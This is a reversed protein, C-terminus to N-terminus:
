RLELDRVFVLLQDMHRRDNCLRPVKHQGGLKGRYAMWQIFTGKPAIVLDLEELALDGARKAAYDSNLGQLAQDLSTRFAEVSRPEHEFEVLWQHAGRQSGDLYVPAVTYDVIRVDHAKCSMAIAKEANDYMVEEGFANIYQQTRGTVRLRYPKTSTFEITDGPTYRWLGSNTSIVLAYQMGPEVDRLQVTHPHESQWEGEPIFEYYMGNDLLLLMDEAGLRDQAAFFGESANYVEQYVFQPSPLFKAFTQRYPRFGVGGHLYVQVNPWVELLHDKGTMELICRFLVITWTPVGGFMGVDEKSCIQVMRALKEEWKDHLATEFDPTLFPRAFIPMHQLMIASVDGYTTEPCEEFPALSGGMILNKRQFVSADPLMAYLLAIADWSGKAHCGHINETSVPIFKSRDSTTGSSKAFWYVRGPWLVDEEGHMMRRIQLRLTEYNQVPVAKAFVHPDEISEFGHMRGFETERAKTILQRFIHAQTEHPQDDIERLRRYKAALYTRMIKNFIAKMERCPLLAYLCV